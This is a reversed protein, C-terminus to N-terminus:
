SKTYGPGQCSIPTNALTITTTKKFHKISLFIKKQKKLFMKLILVDFYDSFM